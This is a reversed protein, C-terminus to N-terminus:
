KVEQYLIRGYREQLHERPAPLTSFPRRPGKKKGPQVEAREAQRETLPAYSRQDDKHGKETGM